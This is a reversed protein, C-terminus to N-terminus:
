CCLLIIGSGKVRAHTSRPVSRSGERHSRASRAFLDSVSLTVDYTDIPALVPLPSTVVFRLWADDKDLRGHGGRWEHRDFLACCPLLSPGSGAPSQGNAQVAALWVAATCCARGRTPRAPKIAVDPELRPVAQRTAKGAPVRMFLHALVGIVYFFFTPLHKSLM